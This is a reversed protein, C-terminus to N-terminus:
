CSSTYTCEAEYLTGVTVAYAYEGVDPSLLELWHNTGNELHLTPSFTMTMACELGMTFNGCEPGLTLSQGSVRTLDLYAGSVGFSSNQYNKLVVFLSSGTSNSQFDYSILTPSPSVSVQVDITDQVAHPSVLQQYLLTISSNGVQTAQFLYNRAPSSGPASGASVATSNLYSVGATTSINWDYGTSAPNDQLQIVFSEGTVASISSNIDGTSMFVVSGVYPFTSNSIGAISTPFTTPFSNLSTNSSSSNGEYVEFAGVAIVVIVAVILVQRLLKRRASGVKSL